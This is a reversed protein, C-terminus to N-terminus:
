PFIKYFNTPLESKVCVEKNTVPHEFRLSFAHLYLGKGKLIYEESGYEKDGLIPNGISALHKRLQHRRGTKPQLKVLNLMGFRKSVVSREVSFNSESEKGDIESEIIGAPAMKGITVAYYIKHVKKREFLSNLASISSATKGVLLAGTTPFDLRHIPQPVTADSLRSPELNKLLANALTKFKNGSVEIGGPKHIVALYEDEFLVKLPFILQKTSNKSPVITLTITDGGNIFTASSAM